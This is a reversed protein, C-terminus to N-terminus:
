FHIYQLMALTFRNHSQLGFKEGWIVCVNLYSSYYIIIGYYVVSILVSTGYVIFRNCLYCFLVTKYIYCMTRM